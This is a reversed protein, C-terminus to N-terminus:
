GANEEIAADIMAQWIAAPADSRLYSYDHRNGDADSSWDSDMAELAADMGKDLMLKTPERMAALVADVIREKWGLSHIDADALARTIKERMRM